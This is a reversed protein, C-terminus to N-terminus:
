RVRTLEAPAGAMARARSSTLIMIGLTLVYPLTNWLHGTASNSLDYRPLVVSITGVGGFLLAAFLCYIPNWRAFIVLAIAMLGQGSSISESWLGPSALSLFSGGIGALFGGAATAAVRTWKVSYGMAAAAEESEGAVRLTLGWRTNKFMWALFPALAVGVLFLPSIKLARRIEDIDSWNGLEMPPLQPAAPQLFAKGFFPALGYAFFIMMAIGVAVSNVKPLNCLLAHMVGLLSGILGAVLVGIWPSISALPL